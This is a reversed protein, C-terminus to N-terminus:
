ASGVVVYHREVLVDREWDGSGDPCYAHAGTFGADVVAQLLAEAPLDRTEVRAPRHERLALHDGIYQLLRTCSSQPSPSGGLLLVSMTNGITLLGGYGLACPAM